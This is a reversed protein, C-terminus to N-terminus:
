QLPLLKQGPNGPPRKSADASANQGAPKEKGGGAHASKDEPKGQGGPTPMPHLRPANRYTLIALVGPLAEAERTEIEAIRGRAITSQIAVAYVRGPLDFEAAYRAAGTVKLRGDIRDLPKGIIQSM